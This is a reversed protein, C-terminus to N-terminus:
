TQSAVGIKKPSTEHKRLRQSTQAILKGLFRELIKESKKPLLTFARFRAYAGKPLLLPKV